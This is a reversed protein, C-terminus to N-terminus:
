KTILVVCEVHNTRPFMDVPKIKLIKYGNENFQAADRAATAPNCSVMIIKKPSMKCVAEICANDCGKRPPDLVVVDPKIGKEALLQAAKSADACIFEANEINNMKANQKANEVASTVIEAGILKGLKDAMTLGISGTGCYLDILTENGNLDAYEKAILYLRESQKKNVQFFSAASVNLAVGCVTDTIYEKGRIKYYTDSLIVNTNKNNVNVLVSVIEPFKQCLKGAFNEFLKINKTAVICVMIQNTDEAIRIFLNRLIGTQSEEDYATIGNENAFDVTFNLIDSFLKPQLDCSDCPIVRHSRKAFFGAIVNGDKDTGFPYQAKNRYGSTRESGLIDSIPTDIKGIREFASKVINQKVKLEAQYSIHRLSCGGCSYYVSCTNEIRSESPTVIQEIKGYGYNKNAKILKIKIVDGIATFPVFVTYGDIKCIGSGENTIDTVVADYINNKKFEM